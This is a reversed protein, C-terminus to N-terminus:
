LQGQAAAAFARIRHLAWFFAPLGIGLLTWALGLATSLLILQGVRVHFPMLVFPVCALVALGLLAALIWWRQRSIAERLM